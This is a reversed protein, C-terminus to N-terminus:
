WGRRERDAEKAPKSQGPPTVSLDANPEVQVVSRDPAVMYDAAKGVETHSPNTDVEAMGANMRVVYGLDDIQRKQDAAERYANPGTKYKLDNLVHDLNDAGELTGTKGWQYARHENSLVQM